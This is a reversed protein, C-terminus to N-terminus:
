TRPCTMVDLNCPLNVAFRSGYEILPTMLALALLPVVVMGYAVPIILVVAFPITLPVVLIVILPVALPIM